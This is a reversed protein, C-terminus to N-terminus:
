LWCLVIALAALLCDFEVWLDINWTMGTLQEIDAGNINSEDV